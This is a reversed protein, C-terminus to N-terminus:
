RPRLEQWAELEQRTIGLGGIRSANLHELEALVDSVFKEQHQPEVNAPVHATIWNAVEGPPVKARVLDAVLARRSPRYLAAIEDFGVVQVTTDYRQCSRRYSWTYLDALPGVENLEYVAITAKLYSDPDVEVFSQPVYDGRILPIISALRATRKNVDVFAQLYSIHVLLFLSQEFPDMIARAKELLLLLLRTLRDRGDIPAYTTGSVRVSDERIQGAAGPAVLSDALLYHLTRITTEDAQLTDVRRAIYDIAEKHNLIMIREANPKGAAAAGQLLLRETDILTYTNGELRSSNFTFDILLRHYIKQIYTGARGYVSERRGLARLEERRQSTLYTSENPVYAQLWDERYTAPARTYLPAEVRKIVAQNPASFLPPATVTPAQAAGITTGIGPVIVGDRARYQRGKREGRSEILGEAALDRLWNRLTRDPVDIVAHIQAPATWADGRGRLFITVSSKDAM